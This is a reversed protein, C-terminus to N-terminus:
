PIRTMPWLGNFAFSHSFLHQFFVVNQLLLPFGIQEYFCGITNRHQPSLVAALFPSRLWLVDHLLNRSVFYSERLGHVHCHVSHLSKPIIYLQKWSLTSMVRVFFSNSAATFSQLSEREKALPLVLVAELRALSLFSLYTIAPISGAM